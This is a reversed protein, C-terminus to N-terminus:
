SGVSFDDISSNGAIDTICITVDTGSQYNPNDIKWSGDEQIKTEGIEMDGQMITVTAGVDWSNYDSGGIFTDGEHLGNENELLIEPPTTDLTVIGAKFETNNDTDTIKVTFANEGKTLTSDPPLTFKWDGHEDARTVFTEGVISFEVKAWPAADGEFNPHPDNTTSQNEETSLYTHPSAESADNVEEGQEFWVDAYEHVTGDSKTYSSMLGLLNGNDMEESAVAGLSISTIDLEALTKLEGPDTIGDMNSDVWVDLQDFIADHLDIVGDENLDHQALAEIGDNAKTGDALDTGAGFMESGDNILGDQNIDWVLFGDDSNAWGTINSTGDADLDYSIKSVDVSITEVGDGDLDLVLPTIASSEAYLDEYRYSDISNDFSDVVYDLTTNLPVDPGDVQIILQGDEVSSSQGMYGDSNMDVDIVAFTYINGSADQIQINFDYQVTYQTGNIEVKQASEIVYENSANDGILTDNSDYFTVKTSASSFNLQTNDAPGNLDGRVVSYDQGFIYASIEPEDNDTIYGSQTTTGSVIGANSSHEILELTVENEGKYTSDDVSKSRVHFSTSGAPVIVYGDYYRTAGWTEGGDFSAEFANWSSGHTADGHVNIKTWSTGTSPNALTAEWTLWEGENAYAPESIMWASKDLLAVADSTVWNSSGETVADFKLTENSEVNSDNVPEVFLRVGSKGAPITIDATHPSSGSMFYDGGIRSWGGEADKTYVHIKGTYDSGYQAQNLSDDFRLTVTTDTTSTKNIDLNYGVWSGGEKGEREQTITTIEPKDPSDHITSDNSKVWDQEAGHGYIVFSENGEYVNDNLVEANVHLDTIGAPVKVSAKYGNSANLDYAGVWAGASTYVHITGSYDSGHSATHGADNFAM